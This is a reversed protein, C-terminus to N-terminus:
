LAGSNRNFHILDISPLIPVETKYNRYFNNIIIFKSILLISNYIQAYEIIKILLRM